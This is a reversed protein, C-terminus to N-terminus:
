EPMMVMKNQAKIEKWKKAVQAAVPAAEKGYGGYRLYVVVVLEPNGSSDRFLFQHEHDGQEVNKDYAVGGFWVHTYINTGEQLELDINEVSEATSTKGIVQHKLEVYNSIANPSSRYLRSLSKLSEKQTHEVVLRMGEVLIKQIEIPLFIEKKVESPMRRVLSKQQEADSASFLPFDIGILGLSEQYPFHYNGSILEHGRIPEKGIFLEVIKPKFIKGGNVLSSLMISTQLPTVVLTHQGISFSYVGTPNTELDSPINGCIEGPLDIGTKSGFSFQRAAEALDNPSNLIDGALIAFYPNSSREIAQLVDINGIKSSSSRPM